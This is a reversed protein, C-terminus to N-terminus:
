RPASPREGQDASAERRCELFYIAYEVGPLKIVRTEVLRAFLGRDRILERAKELKSAESTVLAIQEGEKPQQQETLKPFYPTSLPGLRIINTAYLAWLLNQGYPEEAMDLWINQIRVQREDRVDRAAERNRLQIARVGEDVALFGPKRDRIYTFNLQPHNAVAVNTVALGVAAIILMAANLSRRRALAGIGLALVCGGLLGLPIQIPTNGYGVGLAAQIRAGVTPIYAASLIVAILACLWWGPRLGTRERWLWLLCGLALFTPPILYSVYFWFSLVSVSTFTVLWYIAVLAVPQFLLWLRLTITRDRVIDRLNIRRALLAFGLAALACACVTAIVFPLANWGAVWLLHGWHALGYNADATQFHVAVRLQHSFFLFRGGFGWSVLAVFLIMGLFGLALRVADGALARFAWPQGAHRALFAFGLAFPLLVASFAHSIVMCALSAGGLVVLWGDDPRQRAQAFCAYAAFAYVIVSGDVYDWGAAAIFFSYSALLVASLLSLHRGVIPKLSLYLASTACVHVAYKLLANALVPPVVSYVLFGPIYQPLRSLPYYDAQGAMYDPAFRFLGFYVWPDFWPLVFPNTYPWDPYALWLLLPMAAILLAGARARLFTTNRDVAAATRASGTRLFSAGVRLAATSHRSMVNFSRVGGQAAGKTLDSTASGFSAIVRVIRSKEAPRAIRDVPGPGLLGAGLRGGSETMVERPEGM